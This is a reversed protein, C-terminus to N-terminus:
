VKRSFDSLNGLIGDECAISSDSNVDGRAGRGRGRGRNM